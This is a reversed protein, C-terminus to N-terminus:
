RVGTLIAIMSFVVFLLTNTLIHLFPFVQASNTPNFNTCGSHLVTHLKKLFNFISSGYSGPIGSRPIEVFSVFVGIQFSIHVGINMAANNVIALIHFFDMDM